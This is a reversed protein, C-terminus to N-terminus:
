RLGACYERLLKHQVNVACGAIAKEYEEGYSPLSTILLSAPAYGFHISRASCRQEVRLVSYHHDRMTRFAIINRSIEEYLCLLFYSCWVPNMMRGVLRGVIYKISQLVPIYALSLSGKSIRPHLDTYIKQFYESDIHEKIKALGESTVVCGNQCLFLILKCILLEQIVATNVPIGHEDLVSGDKSKQYTLRGAASGHHGPLIEVEFITKADLPRPVIVHFASTREDAALITICVKVIPPIYYVLPNCWTTFRIGGPVPENIAINIKCRGITMIINTTYRSINVLQQRYKISNLETLFVELYLKAKNFKRKSLGTRTYLERSLELEQLLLNPSSKVIDLLSVSQHRQLTNKVLQLYNVILIIEISGRSHGILNITTEPDGKALVHLLDLLGLVLKERINTGIYDPGNIITKTFSGTSSFGTAIGLCEDVIKNEYPAVAEWLFQITGFREFSPSHKTTICPYTHNTGLCALVHTMPM